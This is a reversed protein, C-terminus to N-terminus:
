TQREGVRTFVLRRDIITRPPRDYLSDCNTNTRRVTLALTAAMVRSYLDCPKIIAISRRFDALLFEVACPASYGYRSTTEDLMALQRIRIICSQCIILVAHASRALNVSVKRFSLSFHLSTHQM